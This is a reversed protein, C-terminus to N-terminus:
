IPWRVRSWKARRAANVLYDAAGLTAARLVDLPALGADVLAEMEDVVVFGLQLSDDTGVLM